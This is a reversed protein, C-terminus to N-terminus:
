ILKWSGLIDHQIFAVWVERQTEKKHFHSYMLLPKSSRASPLQKVGALFLFVVGNRCPTVALWIRCGTDSNPSWYISSRNCCCSVLVNPKGTRDDVWALVLDSGAMRDSKHSFGLGIFGRTNVTATFVIDKEDIQWELIYLGNGDMIETRSWKHHVPAL